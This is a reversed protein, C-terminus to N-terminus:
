EKFGVKGKESNGFTLGTNKSDELEGELIGTDGVVKTEAVVGVKVDGGETGCGITCDMVCSTGENDGVYVRSVARMLEADSIKRRETGPM